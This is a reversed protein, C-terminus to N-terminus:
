PGAVVANNQNRIVDILSEFKLETSQKLLADHVPQAKQNTISQPTFLSPQFATGFTPRGRIAAAIEGVGGGGGARAAAPTLGQGLGKTRVDEFIKRLADTLTKLANNADAVSNFSNNLAEREKEIQRLARQAAALENPPVIGGFIDAADITRGRAAAERRDLAVMQRAINFTRVKTVLDAVSVAIAGIAEAFAVFIDEFNDILVGRLQVVKDTLLKSVRELTGATRTAIVDFISRLSRLMDAFADNASEVGSLDLRSFTGSLRKSEDVMGRISEKGQQLLNLLQGGGRGFVLRSLQLRKLQTPVKSIADAFELFVDGPEMKILKQADLGLEAIALRAEGLGDAADGVNKAMLGISKDITELSSGSLEAARGLARLEDSAIGLRSGMKALADLSKFSQRTFLVLAGVAVGTLAAGFRLVRRAAARVMKAFSRVIQGARKM